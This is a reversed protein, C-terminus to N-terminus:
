QDGYINNSESAQSNVSIGASNLASASKSSLRRMRKIHQEVTLQAKELAHDNRAKAIRQGASSADANALVQADWSELAAGALQMRSALAQEKRRLGTLYDNNRGFVDFMLNMQAFVFDMAADLAANRLRALEEVADIILKKREAERDADIQATARQDQLGLLNRAVISVAASAGAPMPLGRQNLGGLVESTQNHAQAVRHDRGVYRLGDQGQVVGQLWQLALQFGPGVPAVISMVGEFEKAWADSVHNLQGLLQADHARVMREVERLDFKQEFKPLQYAGDESAARGMIKPSAIAQAAGYNQLALGWARGLLWDFLLASPLARGNAM